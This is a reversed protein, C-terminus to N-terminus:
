PLLRACFLFLVSFRACRWVPQLLIPTLFFQVVYLLVYLPFFGNCHVDFAYLWEVRQDTTLM